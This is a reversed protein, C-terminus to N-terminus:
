GTQNKLFHLFLFSVSTKLRKNCFKSLLLVHLTSIKKGATNKEKNVFLNLAYSTYSTSNMYQSVPLSAVTSSFVSREISCHSPVAEVSHNKLSLPPTPLNILIWSSTSTKVYM